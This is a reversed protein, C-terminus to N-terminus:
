APSIVVCSNHGGFGFSNSLVPGRATTRASGRVLDVLAPGASHLNAIPPVEGQSAFAIALVAEVAGAGGMLHGIVGKNATVPIDARGLVEALASIEMEDNLPTSTGHASVHVLDSVDVEADYLAGRMASIASRGSPDPATIHFADCTSAAGALVGLVEAGREVARDHPEVLLFAAGEGMVFGDRDEDFPRSAASPDDNRRSLAGLRAFGAMATKSILTDTGGVLVADAAGSRIWGLATALADNGSACASSITVSPGGCGYRAALTGATSNAMTAPILFPSIRRYDRDDALEVWGDLQAIGGGGTGVVVALRHPNALDGLSAGEVGGLAQAVAADAATVALQTARSVRRAERVGLAASSDFSSSHCAFRVPNEEATWGYLPAALSRGAAVAAITQGLDGAATVAGMGTVVASRRM